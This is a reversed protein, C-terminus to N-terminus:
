AFAAAVQSAMTVAVLLQTRTPHSNPAARMLFRGILHGGSEVILEIDIDTPLGTQEVDLVKQQREVLGDPRLRAPQGIGAVGSEFRCRTLGLLSLLEHSVQSSLDTASGGTSAFAAANRIGELYGSQRAALAANLRGRVALETVALGVGLLLVTTRVDSSRNITFTEYPQTLFFDFSVAASVAALYGALRHGNAAVAVIVLVLILAADTNPLHTRFAAMLACTLLPALLAALVAVRDRLVGTASSGPAAGLPAASSGAPTSRETSM